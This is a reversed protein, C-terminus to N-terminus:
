GAVTYPQLQTRANTRQCNVILLAFCPNVSSPSRRVFLRQTQHDHIARFDLPAPLIVRLAGVVDFQDKGIVHDELELIEVQPANKCGFCQTDYSRRNVVPMLASLGPIYEVSRGHSVEEVSKWSCLM